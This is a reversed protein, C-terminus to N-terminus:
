DRGPSTYTSIHGSETELRSKFDRLVAERDAWKDNLLMGAELCAEQWKEEHEPNQEKIYTSASQYAEIIQAPASGKLAKDFANAIGELIENKSISM